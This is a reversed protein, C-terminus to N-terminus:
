YLSASNLAAGKTLAMHKWIDMHLGPVATTCQWSEHDTMRVV